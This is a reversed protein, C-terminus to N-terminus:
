QLYPALTIKINHLYAAKDAESWFHPQLRDAPTYYKLFVNRTASPIYDGRRDMELVKHRKVEFVANSLAANAGHSLLTLNSISHDAEEVVGDNLALLIPGVLAKFEEQGFHRTHLHPTAADIDALVKGIADTNDGAQIDCLAKRHEQLWTDWQEARNLDQANQAHIHELSWSQGIHEKFPFRERCTEVNFLLLLRQLTTKNSNNEYNLTGDLDDTKTNLTAKIHATLADEFAKKGQGHALHLIDGISLGCAILFGIKNHWRPEEFWGLIQAHLGVVEYWFPQANNNQARDHLTDFTHYRRAGTAPKKALADLLLDIRTGYQQAHSNKPAM